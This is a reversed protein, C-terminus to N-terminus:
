IPDWVQWNKSHFTHWPALSAGAQMCKKTFIPLPIRLLMFTVLSLGRKAEQQLLYKAALFKAELHSDQAQLSEWASDHWSTPLQSSGKRPVENGPLFRVM